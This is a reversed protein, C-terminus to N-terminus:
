LCKHFRAIRALETAKEQIDEKQEPWDIINAHLEHTSTEAEVKLQTGQIEGISLDGRAKLSSDREAGVFNRGIEWIAEEPLSSIRFISTEREFPVFAGFKVIKKEISYHHKNFIYRSTNEEPVLLASKSPKKLKQFISCFRKM